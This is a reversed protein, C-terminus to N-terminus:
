RQVQARLLALRPVGTQRSTAVPNRREVDGAIRQVRVVRDGPAMVGVQASRDLQGPLQADLADDRHGAAGRRSGLRARCRVERCIAVMGASHAGSTRSRRRSIIVMPRIAPQNMM